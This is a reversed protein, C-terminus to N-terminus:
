NTETQAAKSSCAYSTQLKTKTSTHTLALSHREKIAKRKRKQKERNNTKKTTCLSTFNQFRFTDFSGIPPSVGHINREGTSCCM